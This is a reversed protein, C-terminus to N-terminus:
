DRMANVVKLKYISWLPYAGFIVAMIFVAWAQNTFISIDLSFSYIPEVGFSEFAKAADGTFRIPNYYFYTLIPLSVVIGSLVGLFTLMLTEIFVLWQMKFRRMGVAMMVGFEYQREAAMMLFTGLMGFGIVVYLVLLMIQGSINDLEIGQILDPVLELWDMVEYNTSNLYAVIESKIRAVNKVQDVSIAITTLMGGADYFWQAKPLSLYVSQNNQEPVPFKLIGKVPFLGAANAGRYGQGVLVLTDGIDLKLYKALGEAVLVGEDNSELYAGNILKKKMKTLKDEQEPDIGLVLVGKTQNGVSALAYSEIRPVVAEIGAISEIATVDKKNYEFSNDLIKEDWYGNKHIQIYGTYFGVANDIMNGYSGLQMSRMVCALLVAFTISSITIISRRKNRWINRWALKTYM